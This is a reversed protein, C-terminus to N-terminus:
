MFLSSSTCLCLIAAIPRAAMAARAIAAHPDALLEDLELEAAAAGLEDLADLLAALEELPEADGPPAFVRTPAPLM